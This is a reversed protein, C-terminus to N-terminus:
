FPKNDDATPEDPVVEAEPEVEEEKAKSAKKPKVNAEEGFLSSASVTANPRQQEEFDFQAKDDEMIAQKLESTQPLTKAIYRICTKKQMEEKWKGTWLDQSRASQQVRDIYDMYIIESKMRGDPMQAHVTYGLLEGAKGKARAIPDSDHRVVGNIHSITDCERWDMVSILIGNRAFLEIYGQTMIIFTATQKFPVLAAERNDPFLKYTACKDLCSHFSIASCQSLKDNGSLAMVATAMFRNVLRQDGGFYGLLRKQRDPLELAKQVGGKSLSLLESKQIQEESM